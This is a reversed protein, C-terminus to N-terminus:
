WTMFLKKFWFKSNLFILTKLFINPHWFAMLNHHQLAPHLQCINYDISQGFRMLALPIAAPVWVIWSLMNGKLNLDSIKNGTPCHLAQRYLAALPKTKLLSPITKIIIEHLLTEEERDRKDKNNKKWKLQRDWKSGADSPRIPSTTSIRKQKGVLQQNQEKSPFNGILKGKSADNTKM